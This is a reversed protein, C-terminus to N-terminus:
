SNRVNKRRQNWVIVLCVGVSLWGIMSSLGFLWSLGYLEALRGGIPGAILPGVGFVLASMLGQYSAAESSKAKSDLYVVAAVATFGFGVGRFATIAILMWGQTALAFGLWSIAFVAAGVLFVKVPGFRKILKGAWWMTFVEVFASAARMMGAMGETGGLRVMHIASFHYFPQMAMHALTAALLFLWVTGEKPLWQYWKEDTQIIDTDAEPEELLNVIAASVLFVLSTGLFLWEIGILQWVVGMVLSTVAFGLSGWMRWRAFSLGYKTTMRAAIADRIPSIPPTIAAMVVQVGILWAFGWPISLLASFFAYMLAGITAFLLRQRRKDAIRCLIPGSIITIAGPVANFLGILSETLGRADLALNVFPNYIGAAAFTILFVIVGRWAPSIRQKLSAAM